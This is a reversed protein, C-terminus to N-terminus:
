KSPVEETPHKRRIACSNCNASFTMKRDEFRSVIDCLNDVTKVMLGMLHSKTSRESIGDIIIAVINEEDNIVFVTKLM